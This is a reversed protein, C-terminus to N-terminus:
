YEQLLRHNETQRIKYTKLRFLFTIMLFIYCPVKSYNGTQTNFHIELIQYIKMQIFEMIFPYCM